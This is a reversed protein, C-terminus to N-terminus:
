ALRRVEAHRHAADLFLVGHGDGAGHAADEVVVRPRAGLEELQNTGTCGTGATDPRASGALEILSTFVHLSQLESFQKEFVLGEANPAGTVQLSRDPNSLASVCTRTGTGIPLCAPRQCLLAHIQRVGETLAAPGPQLIYTSKIEYIHGDRVAPVRGARGGPSGHGAASEQRVVVRPDGGAGGRARRRAHRHSGQRARRRAAAPFLPTAAPSRRRARRGLPHRLDASRGMRRLVRAPPVAFRAASARIGDLATSLTTARAGRRSGGARRARRAHPDDAPDRRREAPQVGGGHLRAPDARGRHRRCIRSRSSSTPRLADIKDFRANM